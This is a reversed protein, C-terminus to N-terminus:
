DSAEAAIAALPATLTYVLGEPAYEITPPPEAAGVARQLLTTGFGTSEPPTVRPGGRERWRFVFQAADGDHEISWLIAVTGDPTSLAGYKHANTCLEHILLALGQTTASNLIIQGGEISFRNAFPETTREVVDILSAGLWNTASLLDTAHGLAHLRDVLVVRAAALSRGTALSRAAISQVVGLLNKTRHQLERTILAIQAEARKRDSINRAIKAAGIVHGAANRFPSITLSIAITSGDKRLRETDYGKVVEGRRIREMNSTEEGARDPPVILMTPKGIVEAEAYGFLTQAAKNWSKINGSLDKSIIADDSATVIAALHALVDEARKRESIDRFYCVVGYGGRPLPIRNIQWEYSETVGSDRREEVREIAVYPEGTELTNRFQRLIEDAFTQPWLIHVVEDFDRGILEEIDGFVPRAIDNILRMRFEADILYMGVPSTNILTELRTNEERMVAEAQKRVTIDVFTIVVGDIANQATRYPRIRMVFSRTGDKLMLDHEVIEGASQVKEVDARIDAYNLESVIQTVPRGRDTDRVPFLQTLAPTFHRIRLDSDLFVTAIDTSDLLNQMDANLRTLLENKNGLESNITQLEENISQMEEKSTELEENSSQLEENVAQFEETTSKMDELQSEQEDIAAQLQARTGAFERELIQLHANSGVAKGDDGRSANPMWVTATGATVPSTDRFAVVCSGGAKADNEGGIPEVILELARAKGDIRITLNDNVVRQGDALAQNVATRVASRLSKHVVGFLDLSAAGRSPELYHRTEPGSFRTIEHNRDIIFYAPAYHQMLRDIAKDIRDDASRRRVPLSPAQATPVARPQFAPLNAGADRRQLVRHKKDLAAFLRANRTVSEASGLFLYGGPHLAYHFTRMLRDQLEEDLYIMVNRCSILDLKSFPPDKILSHPSFVCMDRIETTPCYDDGSKAFWQEFREPSVGTAAKRYRGGRAIAIANADIDTGFIKVEPDRNRARLAERLLIAISYVEEGTSCGPVWVRVPEDEGKADLMPLIALANLADFAEPDRFFQTVGILIERFLANVESQDTRLREVYDSGTDINLVQMRRQLRRVLTAEKYGSFDHQCRAHLASTIKGLHERIDNRDGNGDKKGSVEVLHKHYAILKGPMAEVPLVHDVMGSAAASHPMGSLAHHDFEAQALTLGGHEKISRIGITGDSGVGALVIGVAREGCDQALSTLFTDIPRRHERLPAPTELRLVGEAITLTADPPIVFVCDAKVMQGDTAAVVPIPSQAALLEVLLSKHQPSLHQVLVFGMGTDAPLNSLFSKFAALGGASAGIGVILAPQPNEDHRM